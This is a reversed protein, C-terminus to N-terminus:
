KGVKRGEKDLERALAISDLSEIVDFLRTAEKCKNRQLHGIMHWEAPQAVEGKKRAAEQVYNEGIVSIGAALASRVSEMSQSKAAALVKIAEANRGARAAAEDIRERIRRYNGSVDVM